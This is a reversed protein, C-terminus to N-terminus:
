KVFRSDRPVSGGSREAHRAPRAAFALARLNRRVAHCKVNRLYKIDCCRFMSVPFFFLYISKYGSAPVRKKDFGGVSGTKKKKKSCFAVRRLGHIKRDGQPRHLRQGKRRLKKTFVLTCRALISVITRFIIHGYCVLTLYMKKCFLTCVRYYAVKLNTM